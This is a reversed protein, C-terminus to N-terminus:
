KLWHQMQQSEILRLERKLVSLTRLNTTVYLSMLGLITILAIVLFGNQRPRRSLTTKM